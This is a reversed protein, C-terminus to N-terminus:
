NERRPPNQREPVTRDSAAEATERGIDSLDQPDEATDVPMRAEWDKEERDIEIIGQENTLSQLKRPTFLFWIALLVLTLLMIWGWM